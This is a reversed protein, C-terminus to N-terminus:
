KNHSAYCEPCLSTSCDKCHYEFQGKHEQCLQSEAFKEPTIEINKVKSFYEDMPIKNLEKSCNCSEIIYVENNQIMHRIQALKEKCRSCLLWVNSKGTVQNDEM